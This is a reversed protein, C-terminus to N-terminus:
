VATFVGPSNNYEKFSQEKRNKAQKQILKNVQELRGTTVHWLNTLPKYINQNIRKSVYIICLNSRYHLPFHLSGQLLEQDSIGPPRHSFSSSSPFPCQTRWTSCVLISYYECTFPKYRKKLLSDLMTATTRKIFECRCSFNMMWEFAKYCASRRVHSSFSAVAVQLAIKPFEGLYYIQLHQVPYVQMQEPGMSMLHTLLKSMKQRIETKMHRNEQRLKLSMFFPPRCTRGFVWKIVEATCSFKGAPGIILPFQASLSCGWFYSLRFAILKDQQNIAFCSPVDKMNRQYRITFSAAKHLSFQLFGVSTRNSSLEVPFILRSRGSHHLVSSTGGLPNLQRVRMRLSGKCWHQLDCSPRFTLYLIM